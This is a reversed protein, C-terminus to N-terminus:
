WGEQICAWWRITVSVNYSIFVTLPHLSTINVLSEISENSMIVVTVIQLKFVLENFINTGCALTTLSPYVTLVPGQPSPLISRKTM